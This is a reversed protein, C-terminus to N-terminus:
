PTRLTAARSMVTAGWAEMEPVTLRSHLIWYYAKHHTKSRMSVKYGHKKDSGSRKMNIAISKVIPKSRNTKQTALEFTSSIFTNLAAMDWKVAFADSKPSKVICGNNYAWVLLVEIKLRLKDQAASGSASSRTELLNLIQLDMSKLAKFASVFEIQLRKEVDENFTNGSQQFMKRLGHRHIFRTLADASDPSYVESHGDFDDEDTYSIGSIAEADSDYSLHAILQADATTVEAMVEDVGPAQHLSAAPQEDTCHASLDNAPDGPHAVACGMLAYLEETVWFASSNPASM